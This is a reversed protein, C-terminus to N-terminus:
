VPVRQCIQGLRFSLYNVRGQSILELVGTFNESALAPFIQEPQRSDIFRLKAPAACASFM